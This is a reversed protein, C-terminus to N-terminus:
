EFRNSKFSSNQSLEKITNTLDIIIKESPNGREVLFYGEKTHIEILLSYGDLFEREKTPYLTWFADSNILKIMRNWEIKSLKQQKFFVIPDFKVVEIIKSKDSSSISRKEKVVSNMEEDFYLDESTGEYYFQKNKRDNFSSDISSRIHSKHIEKEIFLIESDKKELEFSYHNDFSNIFTLRLISNGLYKKHLPKHQFFKHKESYVELWFSDAENSFDSIILEESIMWPSKSDYDVYKDSNKIEITKIDSCSIATIMFILFSKYKM